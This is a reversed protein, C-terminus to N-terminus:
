DIHFPLVSFDPFSASFAEFGSTIFIEDAGVAPRADSLCLTSSSLFGERITSGEGCIFAVCTAACFYYNFVLVFTDLLRTMLTKDALFFLFFVVVESIEDRAKILGIALGTM